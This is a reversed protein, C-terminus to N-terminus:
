EVTEQLGDSEATRVRNTNESPDIKAKAYILQQRGSYRADRSVGPTKRRNPLPM